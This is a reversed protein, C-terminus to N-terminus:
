GKRVAALIKSLTAQADGFVMRTNPLHFLPNEIGAFGAAMSRKLVLCMGARDADLIPMGYIPSKPDNRASPNVVDNAGVVVAVDARSLEANAQDLDLLLEYPVDAEALLVNMHGPMRGAVPHIAYKTEVGRERLLDALERLAHQARAVALGYGPIFVVLRSGSLVIAADEPTFARVAAAEGEGPAGEGTAGFAGFVVNALSRNMARCMLATLLVGSAGVLSGAVVLLMDHLAFGALSAALGSYANLLSIVVPMDGGGIPLVLTAGLALSLLVLPAFLAGGAGAVLAAACGAAALFGLLNATRQFPYTVPRSPLLGQLKGFAVASGTFTVAGVLTGLAATAVAGAARGHGATAFEATAVLASALGGFGNLLAVMQPMATLPVKRAWIAGVASGAALSVLIGGWSARGTELLAVLVALLMGAAGIRNGRAATRPSALMKLGVVFASAALLYGADRLLPSM